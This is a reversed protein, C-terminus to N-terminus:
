VTYFIDNIEMANVVCQLFYQHTLGIVVSSRCLKHEPKVPWLIITPSVRPGRTYCKCDCLVRHLQLTVFIGVFNATVNCM